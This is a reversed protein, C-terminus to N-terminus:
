FDDDEGDDLWCALGCVGVVIGAMVVLVIAGQVNACVWETVAEM